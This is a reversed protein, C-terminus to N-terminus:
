CLTLQGAKEDRRRLTADRKAQLAARTDSDGNLLRHMVRGAKFHVSSRAVVTVPEGTRPNRALRPAHRKPEFVGFGRLEIRHGEALGAGIADLVTSLVLEADRVSIGASLALREVLDARTVSM